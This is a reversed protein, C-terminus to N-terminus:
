LGIIIHYNCIFICCELEPENRLIAHKKRGGGLLSARGYVQGGYGQRRRIGETTLSRGGSYGIERM